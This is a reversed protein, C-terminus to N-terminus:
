AGEEGGMVEDKVGCAGKLVGCVGSENKAFADVGTDVIDIDTVVGCMCLSTSTECLQGALM